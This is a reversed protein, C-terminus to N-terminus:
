IEDTDASTTIHGPAKAPAMNGDSEPPAEAIHESGRAGLGVTCRLTLRTSVLSSQTQCVPSSTKSYEFGM